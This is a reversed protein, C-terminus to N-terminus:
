WFLPRKLGKRIKKSKHFCILGPQKITFILCFSYGIGDISFGELKISLLWRNQIKMKTDKDEANSDTRDNAILRLPKIILQNDPQLIRTEL